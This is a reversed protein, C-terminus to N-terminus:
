VRVCVRKYSHLCLWLASYLCFFDISITDDHNNYSDYIKCNKICRKTKFIQFIYPFVAESKIRFKFIEPLWKIKIIFKSNM